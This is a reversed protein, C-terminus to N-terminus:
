LGPGGGAVLSALTKQSIGKSGLAQVERWSMDKYLKRINRYSEGAMVGKPFGGEQAGAFVRKLFPVTGASGRLKFRQFDKGSKGAYLFWPIGSMSGKNDNPADYLRDRRDFMMDITETTINLNRKWDQTLKNSTTIAKEYFAKLAGKLAPNQAPDLFSEFQGRVSDRVQASTLVQVAQVNVSGGMAGLSLETIQSWLSSGFLAGRMHEGLFLERDLIQTLHNAAMELNESGGTSHMALDWLLWQAFTGYAVSEAAEMLDEFEAQTIAGQGQAFLTAMDTVQSSTDIGTISGNPGFRPKLNMFGVRYKSSGKTLPKNWQGKKADWVPSRDVLPIHYIYAGGEGVNEAIQIFRSLVQKAIKEPTEEGKSHAINMGIMSGIGPIAAATDKPQGKAGPVNIMARARTMPGAGAKNYEQMVFKGFVDASQAMRDADSMTDDTVQFIQQLFKGKTEKTVEIGVAGKVFAEDEFVSAMRNLSYRLYEAEAESKAAMDLSESGAGEVKDIWRDPVGFDSLKKGHEIELNQENIFEIVIREPIEEPTGTLTKYIPEDSLMEALENAMEASASKMRQHPAKDIVDEMFDVGQMGPSDDMINLLMEMTGDNDRSPSIEWHPSEGKPDIQMAWRKSFPVFPAVGFEVTSFVEHLKGRTYVLKAASGAKRTGPAM